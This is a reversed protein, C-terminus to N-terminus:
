GKKGLLRQARKDASVRVLKTGIMPRETFSKLVTEDMGRRKAEAPTITTPKGVCDIGTLIKLTEPTATSKWKTHGYTESLAYDPIVAGNRLRHKALEELATTQAELMALANRMTDLDYALADNPMDDNFALSSADIINMRAARAAPCTALAPCSACWAVGTTLTDTPAGMTQKIREYLASLTVTDISWERVSGDPHFPRPQHIRLVVHRVAIERTIMLGIAHAILTWNNEPSVLRWGYKLDDVTLTQTDERYVWHDCRGNVRWQDNGFSTVAEVEGCDLASIYESVHDLMDNTIIVGNPAKSGAAPRDGAFWQAAVWHAATGENRASPDDDGIAPYSPSMLRSGNCEILRPLEDATIEYM